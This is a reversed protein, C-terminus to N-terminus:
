TGFDEGGSKQRMRNIEKLNKTVSFAEMEEDIIELYNIFETLESRLVKAGKLTSRLLSQCTEFRRSFRNNERMARQVKEASNAYGENRIFDEKIDGAAAAAGNRTETRM